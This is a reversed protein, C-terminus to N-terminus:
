KLVSKQVGNGDVRPKGKGALVDQIGKNIEKFKIALFGCDNQVLVGLESVYYNHNQAVEFNYVKETKDLQKLATILVFSGDKLTLKDGVKLDKAEVWNNSVYFPYEPTCVIKENGVSIEILEKATNQSLSVVEKLEVEGTQENFSWVKDGVQIVEIKKIGNSTLVLTGTVFCLQKITNKLAAKAGHKEIDKLLKVMVGGAILGPLIGGIDNGVDYRQQDTGGGSLVAKYAEIKDKAVKELFAIPNAAIQKIVGMVQARYESNTTLKWAENATGLGPINNLMGDIMGNAFSSRTSWSGLYESEVQKGDPDVLRVPNLYCYTYSSHNFSNYLGDNHQGDYYFQDNMVPNFDALPDVSAWISIRADYYRAGYYYLGSEEDLEKGNFKYPSNHSNKHEEIFTEGFAFYESHQSVEGM